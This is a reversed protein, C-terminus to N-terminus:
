TVTRVLLRLMPSISGLDYCEDQRHPNFGRGPGFLVCPIGRAAFHRMDSTGTSPGFAVQGIGSEQAAVAIAGELEASRSFVPEAAFGSWDFIPMAPLRFRESFRVATTELLTQVDRLTAPPTFTVYASGVAREPVTLPDGASHLSQVVFQNPSPYRDWPAKNGRNLDFVTQKLELMLRALMEAANVEVHSVSVSAPRGHLEISFRFQGAHANIGFDGKTGDVIIAADASHGADLCLLSGNGTIEDELVFHVVLRGKCLLDHQRLVELTALCLLVGAKDDYAGRGYIFNDKIDAAFPSFKWASEDGAPVIDMHSNLIISRGAEKGEVEVVINNRGPVISVPRQADPLSRLRKADFPVKIPSLDLQRLRREVAATVEHEAEFTGRSRILSQFLKSWEPFKNAISTETWM